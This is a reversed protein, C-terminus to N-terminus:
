STKISLLLDSQQKLWDQHEAQFENFHKQKEELLKALKLVVLPPISLPKKKYNYITQTTVGLQKALQSAWVKGYLLEGGTNIYRLRRWEDKTM